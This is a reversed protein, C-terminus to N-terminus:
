RELYRDYADQTIEEVRDLKMTDLKTQFEDWADDNLETQGIIVKVSFETIYTMLNVVLSGRENGEDVTYTLNGTLNWEGYKGWMDNFKIGEENVQNEERELLTVVAGNFMLYYAQATGVGMNPNNVILDDQMPVGDENYHFTEGEIGYNSIMYGEESYRYDYWRLVEEVHDSSAFVVEAGPTLGSSYKGNHYVKRDYGEATPLPLLSLYCDEPAIGTRAPEDGVLTYLCPVIGFEGQVMRPINYLFAVNQFDPDILGESYWGSLTELYDRYGQDRYSSHIVDDVVILGVEGENTINFAGELFNMPTSANANLDLPAAGGSKKEKFERLVDGIEEITQPADLGLDDLWDQRITMGGWPSQVRNNIMGFTPMEGEDTYANKRNAETLNVWRMYNPIFEEYNALDVIVDDEIAQSWGGAYNYNMVTAADPLDQSAFALSLQTDYNEASFLQWDVAIGTNKEIEKWAYNEAYFGGPASVVEDQESRWVTITIDGPECIPYGITGEAFGLPMGTEPDLNDSVAETEDSAEAETGSEEAADPVDTDQAEVTEEAAEAATEGSTSAAAEPAATNGCGAFITLLMLMVLFISFTKKM